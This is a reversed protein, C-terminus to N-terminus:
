ELAGNQKRGYRIMGIVQNRSLRKSLPKGNLRWAIVTLAYTWRLAATPRALGVEACVRKWREGFARMWLIKADKSDIIHDTDITWLVTEEMRSIAAPSPPFRMPEPEQGVLDSFEYIIKPWTSFYGQVKMTPLRKLVDAAEELREQVLLPTWHIRNISAKPQFEDRIPLGICCPKQIQPLCVSIDPGTM